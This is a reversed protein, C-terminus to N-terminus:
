AAVAGAVAVVSWWAGLTPLKSSGFSLVPNGVQGQTTGLTQTELYLSQVDLYLTQLM